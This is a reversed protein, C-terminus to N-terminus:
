GEGNTGNGVGGSALKRFVATMFREVKVGIGPSVSERNGACNLARIEEAMIWAAVDSPRTLGEIVLFTPMGLAACARLTTRGGSSDMDGFWVTGDSDRVNARTRAPYGPGPVRGARLRGAM